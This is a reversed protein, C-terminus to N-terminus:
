NKSNKRNLKARYLNKDAEAVFDRYSMGESFITVGMSAM